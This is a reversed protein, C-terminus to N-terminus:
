NLAVGSYMFITQDEPDGCFPTSPKQDPTNNCVNFAVKLPPIIFPIWTWSPKFPFFPHFSPFLSASLFFIWCFCVFPHLSHITLNSFMYVSYVAWPKGPKIQARLRTTTIAWVPRQCYPTWSPGSNLLGHPPKPVQCFSFPPPPHDSYSNCHTGSPLIQLIKNRWNQTHEPLWSPHNFSM